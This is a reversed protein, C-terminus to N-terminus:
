EGRLGFVYFWFSVDEDSFTGDAHLDMVAQKRDEPPLLALLDYVADEAVRRCVTGLHQIM